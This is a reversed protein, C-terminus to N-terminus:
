IIDLGSLARVYVSWSLLGSDFAWSLEELTGARPYSRSDPDDGPRNWNTAIISAILARDDGDAATILAVIAEVAARREEVCVRSQATSPWRVLPKRHGPQAGSAMGLRSAARNTTEFRGTRSGLSAAVDGGQSAFVASRKPYFVHGM